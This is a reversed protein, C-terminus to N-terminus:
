NANTRMSSHLLRFAAPSGAIFVILLLLLLLLLLVSAYRDASFCLLVTGPMWNKIIDQLIPQNMNGDCAAASAVQCLTLVFRLFVYDCKGGGLNYM